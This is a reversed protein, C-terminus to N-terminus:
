FSKLMRQVDVPELLPRVIASKVTLVLSTSDPPGSCNSYVFMDNGLLEHHSDDYLSWAKTTAAAGPQSPVLDPRVVAGVKNQYSILRVAIESPLPDPDASYKTVGIPGSGTSGLFSLASQVEAKKPLAFALEHLQSSSTAPTPPNPQWFYDNQEHFNIGFDGKGVTSFDFSAMFDKAGTDIALHAFVGRTSAGSSASALTGKSCDLVLSQGNFYVGPGPARPPAPPSVALDVPCPRSLGPPEAMCDFQSDWTGRNSGDLQYVPTPTQTAIPLSPSAGPAFQPAVLLTLAAVLTAGVSGALLLKLLMSLQASSVHFPLPAGEANPTAIDVRDKIWCALWLFGVAFLALIIVVVRPGAGPAPHGDFFLDWVQASLVVLVALLFALAISLGFLRKGVRNAVFSGVVGGIAVLIEIVTAKVTEDM